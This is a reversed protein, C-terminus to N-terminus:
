SHSRVVACTPNRRSASSPDDPRATPLLAASVGDDRRDMCVVGGADARLVYRRRVAGGHSVPGPLRPHALCGGRRGAYAAVAAGVVPGRGTMPPPRLSLYGAAAASIAEHRRLDSTPPPDPFHLSVGERTHNVRLHDLPTAAAFWQQLPTEGGRLILPSFYDLQHNANCHGVFFRVDGLPDASDVAMDIDGEQVTGVRGDCRLIWTRGPDTPRQTQLAVHPISLRGGYIRAAALIEPRLARLSVDTSDIEIPNACPNAPLCWAGIPRGSLLIVLTAISSALPVRVRNIGNRNM